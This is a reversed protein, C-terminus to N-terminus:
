GRCVMVPLRVEDLSYRFSRGAVTEGDANVPIRAASEVEFVSARLYRVDPSELHTGARLDPLLTLFDLRSDGTVVVVDLKGDGHDARPTVRTGGGTWRANGVAFFIFPGDHVVEGDVVFRAPSPEFDMLRRAGHVLYALAGLRRKAMRSAGRTADAGFGGTSVNIFCRRNVRAVDVPV